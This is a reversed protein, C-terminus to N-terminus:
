ICKFTLKAVGNIILHSKTQNNVIHMSKNQNACYENANKIAYNEAGEKRGALPAAEVTAVYHGNGDKTINSNYTLGLGEIQTRDNKVACGTFVVGGILICLSIYKINEM